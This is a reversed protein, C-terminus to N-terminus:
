STRRRIKKKSLKFVTKQLNAAEDHRGLDNLSVALSNMVTITKLNEDGFIRTYLELLQQKQELAENHRGINRLSNAFNNLATLTNPHEDGLIEKSLTLVKKQLEMADNHRGLNSLSFALNNMVAITDPHKDGLIEKHLTLVKERLSLAETYNGLDSLVIALKHMAGVTDINKDGLHRLNKEYASNTIRYAEKYSGQARRLWGLDMEFRAYTTNDIANLSELKGMFLQLIKEAADFKACAILASVPASLTVNYQALLKNADDAFRVIFEAWLKLYFIKQSDFIKENAFM